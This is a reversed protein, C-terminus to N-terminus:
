KIDGSSSDGSEFSEVKEKEQQMISASRADVIHPTIMVITESDPIVDEM